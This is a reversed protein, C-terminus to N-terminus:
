ESEPDSGDDSEEVALDTKHGKLNPRKSDLAAWTREVREPITADISGFNTEVICGGTKVSESVMLKLRKLDETDETSAKSRIENVFDFDEQSLRVIIQDDKQLGEILKNLMSIIPKQDIEIERCAIKKAVEFVLKVYAAENEKLLMEKIHDFEALVSDLKSLREALRENAETFAKEAGEKQGLEYAKSYAEEQIGKIRELVKEEIKEDLKQRKLDAIGSAQAVIPSINFDQSPNTEREVYAKAEDTSGVKITKPQYNLVLKEADEKSVVQSM